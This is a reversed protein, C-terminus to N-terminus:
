SDKSFHLCCRLVYEDSNNAYQVAFNASLFCVVIRSSWPVSGNPSIDHMAGNSKGNERVSIGLSLNREKELRTLIGEIGSDNRSEVQETSSSLNSSLDLDGHNLTKDMEPSNCNPLQKEIHLDQPTVNENVRVKEEQEDLDWGMSLWGGQNVIREVLDFRGSRILDKKSPFMGPKESNKMFELIETELDKSGESDWGLNRKNCMRSVGNCRSCCSKKRPKVELFGLVTSGCVKRAFRICAKAKYNPNFTSGFSSLHLLTDSDIM